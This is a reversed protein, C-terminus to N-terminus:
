RLYVRLATEVVHSAPVADRDARERVAEVLDRPLTWRGEVRKREVVTGSPGSPSPRRYGHDRLWDWLASQSPAADRLQSLTQTVGDREVGRLTVAYTAGRYRLTV